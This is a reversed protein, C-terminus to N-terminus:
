VENPTRRQRVAEYLTIAASISVNLSDTHSHMPIVMSTCEASTWNTQLGQAENGLVIAAGRRFDAEWLGVEGDVRATYLPIELDACLSKVEDATAVAIPVSFLSGRSARIANPNFVDCIPNTLIVADTGTAAATRLCAGINGPKEIRDLVLLMPKETTFQLRSLELNPAKAVAVLGSDRDGYVLKRMALTSVPQLKEQGLRDALGFPLPAGEGGFYLCEIEIGSKLARLIEQVGDIIFKGTERRASADRLKMALKIQPNQPSQIIPKM